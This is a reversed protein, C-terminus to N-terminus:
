LDLSMEVTRESFGFKKLFLMARKNNFHADGNIQKIKNKKADKLMFEILSRGHGKSKNIVFIEELNFERGEKKYWIFGEIKNNELVFMNSSAINKNLIKKNENKTIYKEGVDKFNKSMENEYLKSIIGLDKKTVKRIKM